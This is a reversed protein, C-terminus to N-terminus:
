EVEWSNDGILLRYSSTSWRNVMENYKEESAHPTGQITKFKNMKEVIIERIKKSLNFVNSEHVPWLENGPFICLWCCVLSFRNWEFIDQQINYANVQIYAVKSLLENLGWATEYDGDAQMLTIAGNIRNKEERYFRQITKLRDTIEGYTLNNNQFSELQAISENIGYSWLDAKKENKQKLSTIKLPTNKLPTNKLPTNEDIEFKESSLLMQPAFTLAIIASSILLM